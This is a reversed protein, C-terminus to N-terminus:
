FVSALTRPYDIRWFYVDRVTSGLQFFVTLQAALFTLVAYISWIVVVGLRYIFQLFCQM